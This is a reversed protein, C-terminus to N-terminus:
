QQYTITVSANGSSTNTAWVGNIFYYNVGDISSTTSALASQTVRVPYNNTTAAVTQSVSTLVNTMINTTLVGFYNTYIQTYNTGYILRNTYAPVVYTLANTPTDLIAVTTNTATSATVNIQTIKAVGGVVSLLNTFGAPPVTVTITAASAAVISGIILLSALIKKM